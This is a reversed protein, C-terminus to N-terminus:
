ILLIEVIGAEELGPYFSVTWETEVDLERRVSEVMDTFEQESQPFYSLRVALANAGEEVAKRLLDPVAEESTASILAAYEEASRRYSFNAELLYCDKDEGVQYTMYKLLYSGVDTQQVESCASAAMGNWESEDVHYVRVVGDSAHDGVLLLLANVLDQYNEARLTDEAENEWYTASHMEVSSYSRELIGCGSLLIGLTLVAATM